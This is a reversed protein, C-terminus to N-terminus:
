FIEGFALLVVKDKSTLKGVQTACEDGDIGKGHPDNPCWLWNRGNEGTRWQGRPSQLNWAQGHASTTKGVRGRDAKDKGGKM